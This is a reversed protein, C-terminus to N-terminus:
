TRSRKIERNLLSGHYKETERNKVMYMESPIITSIGGIKFNILLIM